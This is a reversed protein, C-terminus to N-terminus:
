WNSQCPFAGGCLLDNEFVMSYFSLMPLCFATASALLIVQGLPSILPSVLHEGLGRETSHYLLELDSLLM